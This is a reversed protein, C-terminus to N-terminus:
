STLPKIRELNMHHYTNDKLVFGVLSLWDHAPTVFSHTLM